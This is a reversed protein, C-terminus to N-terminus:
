TQFFPARCHFQRGAGLATGDDDLRRSSGISTALDWAHVAFEPLAASSSADGGQSRLHELLEDAGSRFDAAPDEGQAPPNAWDVDKGSFMSVFNRPSAVVHQVLQGVTWDSCTSPQDYQDPSVEDLLGATQDIARSLLATIDPQAEM